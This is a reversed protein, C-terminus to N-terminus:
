IDIHEIIGKRKAELRAKAPDNKFEEPVHEAKYETVRKAYAVRVRCEECNCEEKRFIHDYNNRSHGRDKSGKSM